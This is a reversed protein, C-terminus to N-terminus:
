VEWEIHVTEFVKHLRYKAYFSQFIAESTWLGMKKKGRDMLYYAANSLIDQGIGKGRLEPKLGVPGFFGSDTSTNSQLVCFGGVTEQYEV